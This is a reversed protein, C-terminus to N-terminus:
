RKILPFIVLDMWNPIIDRSGKGLEREQIPSLSLENQDERIQDLFAEQDFDPFKQSLNFLTGLISDGKRLRDEVELATKRANESPNASKGRIPRYSDLYSKLEKSPKFAISAAGQPSLGFKSQLLNYYEESNGTENFIKSYQQLEKLTKDGKFFSEFGTSAAKELFQNRTKALDLAKNSWHNAVDKFSANPNLRLDREMSREINNLMEGTIDQFIGEKNKQFKTELQRTLEDRAKISKDELAKQREEYVKPQALYRREDDAALEQAKDPLFGKSIYNSIAANRQEPTWEYRPLGAENLPPENQIQPQGFERPNVVSGEKMIANQAPINKGNKPITRNVIETPSISRSVDGEPNENGSSNRYANTQNQYRALEGLSQVMQPTIGYTGYAKTAFELPNLNKQQNLRELGKSLRYNEMEKPVQESFGKAAGTLIKGFSSQEQPIIQFSM